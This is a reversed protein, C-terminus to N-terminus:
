YSEGRTIFYHVNFSVYFLRYYHKIIKVINRLNFSNYFDLDIYNDKSKIDLSM